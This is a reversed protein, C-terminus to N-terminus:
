GRCRNDIRSQRKKPDNIVKYFDDIYDTTKKPRRIGPVLLASEIESRRENFLAVVDDLHENHACFGRWVRQRVSRIRFEPVPEAYDPNVVGTQDFDYPVVMWGDQRGPPSLVRGNHCCNSGEPGLKASWDTNGVMYQFMTLLTTYAPDLQGASVKPVKQRELGTRAAVEGISEILFGPEVTEAGNRDTDRYTISLRRTRFSVDTLVNFAEYIGQEQLVYSRYDRSGRCHTVLKLSKQGEFVTGKADKKREISLSLPPFSCVELRSKGRTSVKIPRSIVQGDADVYSAVADVVPRDSARRVLTRLPLEITIDLTDDSAFLPLDDAAVAVPLLLLVLIRVM